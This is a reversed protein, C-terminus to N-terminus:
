SLSVEEAAPRQLTSLNESPQFHRGPMSAARFATESARPTDHYYRRLIRSIFLTGAVRERRRPLRRLYKQWSSPEGGMGKREELTTKRRKKHEM